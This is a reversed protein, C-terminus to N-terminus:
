RQPVAPLGPGGPPSVPADRGIGAADPRSPAGAKQPPTAVYLTGALSVNAPPPVGPPLFGFAWERYSARGALVAFEPAFEAIKVPADASLSHVGVIGGAVAVLGWEARGTMPDVYIRRLHRRTGPYRPDKLLDELKAPYNRQGVPTAEYYSRFARAFEAGVFLLEEERARRDVVSGASLAAVSALALIAIFIMLGIYTFGTERAHGDPALARVPRHATPSCNASRSAM